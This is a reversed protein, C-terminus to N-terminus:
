MSLNRSLGKLRVFGQLWALQVSQLGLARFALPGQGSFCARSLLGVLLFLSFGSYIDQNGEAVRAELWPLLLRM